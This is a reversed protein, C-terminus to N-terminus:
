GISIVDCSGIMRFSNLIQQEFAIKYEASVKSGDPIAARCGDLDNREIANFLGRYYPTNAM